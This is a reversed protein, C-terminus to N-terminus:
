GNHVHMFFWTFLSHGFQLRHPTREAKEPTDITRKSVTASFIEKRSRKCAGAYNKMKRKWFQRPIRKISNRCNMMQSRKRNSNSQSNWLFQGRKEKSEPAPKYFKRTRKKKKLRSNAGGFIHVAANFIFFNRHNTLIPVTVCYGNQWSLLVSNRPKRWNLYQWAIDTKVERSFLICFCLQPQKM